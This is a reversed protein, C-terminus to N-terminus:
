DRDYYDEPRALLIRLGKAAIVLGVCAVFGYLAHFGLWEEFAFDGHKHVLPEVLVLLGCVVWVAWYVKDVNRKSDLWRPREDMGKAGGIM